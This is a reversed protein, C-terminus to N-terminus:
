NNGLTSPISCMLLICVCADYENDENCKRETLNFPVTDGIYNQCKWNQRLNSSIFYGSM